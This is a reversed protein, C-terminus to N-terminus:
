WDYRRPKQDGYVRRLLRSRERHKRGRRSAHLVTAPHCGGDVLHSEAGDVVTDVDHGRRGCVPANDDIGGRFGVSDEGGTFPDLDSRDEGGMPMVVVYAGYVGDAGGEVDGESQMGGVSGDGAPIGVLGEGVALLDDDIIDGEM